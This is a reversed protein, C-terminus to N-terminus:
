DTKGRFRSFYIVFQRRIRTLHHADCGHESQAYDSPETQDGQQRQAASNVNKSCPFVSICDSLPNGCRMWKPTEPERAPGTRAFPLVDPRLAALNLRM